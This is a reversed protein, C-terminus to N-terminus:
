EWKIGLVCVDDIQECDKKWDMFFHELRQHQNKVTEVNMQLLIETFGKWMLKM